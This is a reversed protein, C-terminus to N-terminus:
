PASECWENEKVVREEQEATFDNVIGFTARLQEAKQGSILM